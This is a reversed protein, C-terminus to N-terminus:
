LLGPHRGVPRKASPRKAMAAITQQRTDRTHCRRCAAVSREPNDGNAKGDLHHVEDAYGTCHEYQLRCRHQDRDLIDDRFERAKRTSGGSWAKSM